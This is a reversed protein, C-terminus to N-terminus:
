AVAKREIRWANINLDFYSDFYKIIRNRLDMDIEHGRVVINVTNKQAPLVFEPGYYMINAIDYDSFVENDDSDLIVQAPALKIECGVPFLEMNGVFAHWTVQVHETFCKDIDKPDTIIDKNFFGKNNETSRARVPLMHSLNKLQQESLKIEGGLPSAMLEPISVSFNSNAQFTVPATNAYGHVGFIFMQLLLRFGLKSLTSCNEHKDDVMVKPFTKEFWKMMFPIFLKSMTDNDRIYYLKGDSAVIAWRSIDFEKDRSRAALDALTLKETEEYFKMDVLHGTQTTSVYMPKYASNLWVYVTKDTSFKDALTRVIDEEPPDIQEEKLDKCHSVEIKNRNYAGLEVKYFIDDMEVLRIDGSEIVEQSLHVGPESMTFRTFANPRYDIKVDKEYFRPKAKDGAM